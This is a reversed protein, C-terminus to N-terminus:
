RDLKDITFDSIYHVSQRQNNKPVDGDMRFAWVGQCLAHEETLFAVKDDEICYLAWVDADGPKYHNKNSGKKRTQFHYVSLGNSKNRSKVQIKFLHGDKAAILDVKTTDCVSQYVDFGNKMLELTVSLEGRVGLRRKDVYSTIM